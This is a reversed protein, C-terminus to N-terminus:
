DSSTSPVFWASLGICGLLGSWPRLLPSSGRQGDKPIQVDVLVPAQNSSRPPDQVAGHMDGWSAALAKAAANAVLFAADADGRAARAEPLSTWADLHTAQGDAVVTVDKAKLLSRPPGPKIRMGVGVHRQCTACSLRSVKRGDNDDEHPTVLLTGSLAKLSCHFTGRRAPLLECDQGKALTTGCGRCAVHDVTWIPVSERKRPPGSPPANNLLPGFPVRAM